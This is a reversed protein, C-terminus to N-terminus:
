LASHLLYPTIKYVACPQMRHIRLILLADPYNLATETQHSSNFKPPQHHCLVLSFVTLSCMNLFLCHEETPTIFSTVLTKAFSHVTATITWEWSDGWDRVVRINAYINTNREREKKKKNFCKNNYEWPSFSHSFCKSGLSNFFHATKVRNCWPSLNDSVLMQNFEGKTPKQWM